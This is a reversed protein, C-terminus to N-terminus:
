KFIDEGHLVFARYTREFIWKRMRQWDSALDHSIQRALLQYLFWDTYDDLWELRLRHNDVVCDFRGPERPGHSASVPTILDPHNTHWGRAYAFTPKHFMLRAELLVTSNAGAVGSSREILTKLDCEPPLICSNPMDLIAQALRDSPAARPHPKLVLQYELPLSRRFHTVLETWDTVNLDWRNVNDGILQLPWLIFPEQIQRPLDKRNFSLWERRRAQAYTRQSDTITRFVMRALSSEWAFGLPDAHLTEYHPFFGDESCIRDIGLERCLSQISIREAVFNGMIMLEPYEEASDLVRRFHAETKTKGSFLDIAGKRYFHELWCGGYPSTFAFSKPQITKPGLYRVDEDEVSVPSDINVPAVPLSNRETVLRFSRLQRAEQHDPFFRGLNTCGRAYHQQVRQALASPDDRDLAAWFAQRSQVWTTYGEALETNEFLDAFRPQFSELDFRKQPVLMAVPEGVKFECKGPHTFKWNMSFTACSWDTEVLGELPVIGAKVQNAPGRCLLNWGHPTRFVYPIRWTLVGSGVHSLAYVQGNLNDISLSLDTPADGGNWVATLNHPALVFWGSENAIRMPLCYSAYDQPMADMWDRRASAPVLQVDFGWAGYAVWDLGTESTANTSLPKRGRIQISQNERKPFQQIDPSEIARVVDIPEISVMCKGVPRQLTLVPLECLSQDHSSGDGLQVARARWCPKTKCCSFKGLTHLTTQLPYQTWTVPERGGLIAVYPREFAACLHQLLTVPGVGGESHYAICLLDRINTKGVLNIVGDLTPHDDEKAGIQIFQIRDRFTNVVEQFYEVPWQKLTFDSKVGASVVWYRIPNSGYKALPHTLMEKESLYLHPRNTTLELTINLAKALHQCYGNIFAAPTQSSRNISETYHMEIIQSEDESLGTVWPNNEFLADSNTRVDTLYQGPYTKHLSEIAATLTCIDGPPLKSKLIIKRIHM